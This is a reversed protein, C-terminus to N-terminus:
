LVGQAIIRCGASHGAEAVRQPSSSLRAQQSMVGGTNVSNNKGLMGSRNALPGDYSQVASVFIFALSLAASVLCTSALGDRSRRPRWLRPGLIPTLRSSLPSALRSRREKRLGRKSKSEHPLSPQAASSGRGSSDSVGCACACSGVPKAHMSAICTDSKCRLM